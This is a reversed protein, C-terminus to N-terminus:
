HAEGLGGRAAAGRAGGGALPTSFLLSGTSVVTYGRGELQASMATFRDRERSTMFFYITHLERPHFWFSIYLM